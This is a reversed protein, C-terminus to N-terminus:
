KAPLDNESLLYLWKGDGSTGTFQAGDPLREILRVRKRTDADYLALYNYPKNPDKMDQEIAALKHTGKLWYTHYDYAPPAKDDVLVGKKYLQGNSYIRYVGDESDSFVTWWHDEQSSLKWETMKGSKWEYRYRLPKRTESDILVSYIYTGDDKLWVPMKADSVESEPVMGILVGKKRTQVGTDVNLIMLDLDKAKGESSSVAMIVQKGDKSWASGWVYGDVKVKIADSGGPVTEGPGPKPLFFGRKDAIFEGPGKYNMVIENYYSTLKKEQFDYLKTIKGLTADCECYEKFRHAVGYRQNLLQPMYYFTETFSTLKERKTGDASVRWLQKILHITAGFSPPDQLTQKSKTQAGKFYIRYFRAVPEKSGDLLAPIVTLKLERDSKWEFKYSFPEKPVPSQADPKNTDILSKEVSKRDMAEKFTVSYTQPSPPVVSHIPSRLRPESDLVISV